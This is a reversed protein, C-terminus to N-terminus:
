NNLEREVRYIEYYYELCNGLCKLYKAHTNQRNSFQYVNLQEDLLQIHSCQAPKM